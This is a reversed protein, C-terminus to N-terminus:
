RRPPTGDTENNRSRVLVVGGAIILLIGVGLLVSQKWGFGSGTHGIGLPDALAAVLAAVVGVLVAAIGIQRSTM